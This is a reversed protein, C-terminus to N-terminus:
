KGHREEKRFNIEVERELESMTKVKGGLIWQEIEARKFYILKGSPKYFPVLRKSTLKYLFSESLNFAVATEDLSLWEKKEILSEDIVKKLEQLTIEIHGLM